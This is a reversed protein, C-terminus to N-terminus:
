ILCFSQRVFEFQSMGGFLQNQEDRSTADETLQNIRLQSCTEGVKYFLCKCLSQFSCWQCDIAQSTLKKM